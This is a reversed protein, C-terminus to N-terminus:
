AEPTVVNLTLAASGDGIPLPNQQLEYTGGAGTYRGTGGVITFTEHTLAAPGVGLIAGDALEIRHSVMGEQGAGARFSGVVDGSESRLTGAPYVPTGPPPLQGPEVGPRVLQWDTGTLVIPPTADPERRLLGYGAASAIGAIGTGLLARRTTRSDAVTM